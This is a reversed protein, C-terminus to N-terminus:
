AVTPSIQSANRRTYPVYVSTLTVYNESSTQDIRGCGAEQITKLTSAADTASPSATTEQQLGTRSLCGINMVNLANMRCLKRQQHGSHHRSSLGNELDWVLVAVTADTLSSGQDGDFGSHSNQAM